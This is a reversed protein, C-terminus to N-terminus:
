GIMGVLTAAGRQSNGLQQAQVVADELLLQIRTAGAVVLDLPPDGADELRAHLAATQQGVASVIALLNDWGDTAGDAPRTLNALLSRSALDHHERWRLIGARSVMGIPRRGEVILVRRSATRTLFDHVVTASVAAAFSPPQKRMVEGVPRNWGSHKMLAHGLDEESLLGAVNGERDVVPASDLRLGLLFHTAEQLTMSAELTAVLPTMIDEATLKAFGDNRANEVPDAAALAQAFSVVQDRGLQKALRLAQDARDILQECDAVDPDQAAVGFSATMQVPEAGPTFPTAAICKRLRQAWAVAGEETTEPLVALFEEGGYRGPTDAGRCNGLLRDAITQLVADGAAHGQTDNIRKFFDIDLLVCALPANSRQSRQWERELEAVLSRRNLLGTLGDHRAQRGLESMLRQNERQIQQRQIAYRLTRVLIEPSCQGKALYDQAGRELAQLALEGDALGTLVVVPLDPFRSRLSEVGELGFNDPLSLDLLAVDFDACALAEVAAQMQRVHRLEFGPFRELARQVLLADADDDEILLLRQRPTPNATM